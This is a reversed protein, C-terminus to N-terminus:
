ANWIEPFRTTDRPKARTVLHLDKELGPIQRLLELSRFNLGHARPYESLAVRREVLCCQVGRSSLMLAATLVAYGGGVILVRTSEVTM